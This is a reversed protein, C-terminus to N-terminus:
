LTNSSVEQLEVWREQYVTNPPRGLLRQYHTLALRAHEQGQGMKWLEYHLTAQKAEDGVTNALLAQLQRAAQQPQDAAFAIKAQLLQSEFTLQPRSLQRVLPIAEAALTQAEQLRNQALFLTAQLLMYKVTDSHIGLQRLSNIAQSYHTEAKVLDNTRQYLTGLTGIATSALKTDGMTEGLALAQQLHTLSQQFDGIELYLQGLNYVIVGETLKSNVRRCLHLAQDLYQQAQGYQGQAIYIVGLNDLVNAKTWIDNIQQDLQLVRELAAIAEPYRELDYYVLATNTLIRCIGQPSELKENLALCEQAYTLATKLRDQLYYLKSILGTTFAQGQKDGLSIQIQLAQEVHALAEDLMPKRSYAEGLWALASAFERSQGVTEFGTAALRIQEIAQDFEGLVIMTIGLALQAGALRRLNKNQEAQRRAGILITQGQEFNGQQCIFWAQKIRLHCLTDKIDPADAQGLGALASVALGFIEEAEQFFGTIEYFVNLAEISGAIIEILNDSVAWRWAQRINDLELHLVAVAQQPQDGHLAAEQQGVLDLYYHSHRKKITQENIEDAKSLNASVSALKEAAFQRLLEHLQYRGQDTVRLLSKEVLLALTMLNAQAVVEAATQDFSGRFVALRRLMEQEPAPLMGWSQEFVVRMSRHRAPIDQLRSSLLDLNHALGQTIKELPLVKLWAAALELALPMGGVLQCIKVVHTGEAALSFKLRVRQASQVFLRVADYKELSVGESLHADEAPFSLGEVPHFWAEQLNVAERSTVLVKVQPAAGLIEAILAVIDTAKEESSAILHEVNDLVLLLAQERLFDLLQTQPSMNNYFTLNVAGAIASLTNTISEVGVLPVFVVGHTFFDQDPDFEAFAQAVQLALRTKGIGGPGVLTLLRCDRDMLRRIIDALEKERGVFATPQLPLPHLPASPHAPRSAPSIQAPRGIEGSKIQEYLAMTEQGPEVGLEETLMQCCIEYQALAASRQGDRALLLMLQRHAEERWPELNLLRRTFAIAEPLAGQETNRTILTYLTQVFRERLQAQQALMWAEFDPAHLVYFGTLFDDRFLEIATQLAVADAASSLPASLHADIIAVFEAVDVWVEVKQKFAVVQRDIELYDGLSRRLTALAKRLNTRAAAEPVDGWLLTALTARSQPQEMVALYYILAQGKSSLPEVIAEGDIEILPPGLLKLQLRNAM